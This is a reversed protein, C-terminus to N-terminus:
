LWKGIRIFGKTLDRFQTPPDPPDVVSNTWYSIDIYVYDITMTGSMYGTGAALDLGFNAGNIDSISLGSITALDYSVGVLSYSSSTSQDSSTGAIVNSGDKTLQFRLSPTGGSGKVRAYCAITVNYADAPISFGFTTAFMNGTLPVTSYVEKSDGSTRISNVFTDGGTISWGTGSAAGPINHDNHYIPM